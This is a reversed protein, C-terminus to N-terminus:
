HVTRIWKDFAQREAYNFLVFPTENREHWDNFHGVRGDTWEVYEVYDV